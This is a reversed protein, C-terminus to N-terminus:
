KITKELKGVSKIDQFAANLDQRAEKLMDRASTMTSKNDPYGAPTLTSVTTIATQAKTQADSIKAQRDTLAAQLKSVDKGSAQLSDIRAQITANNATMQTALDLIADAHAMIEVQPMLVVFVRYTTVISQKDTKLAEADTDAAIKAKLATLDNIVVQVKSVFVAKQDASIRKMANIRSILSNLATIRRDIEQNAREKGADIRVTMVTSLTPTTEAFALSPAVASGLVLSPMLITFFTTKMKM